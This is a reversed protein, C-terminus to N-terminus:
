EAELSFELSGIGEIKGSLRDGPRLASVGAPTGTFILDGAQLAYFRSLEAIVEPVSWIMQSLDGRQRETGNVTLSILGSQPHGCASVAVIESVPGSHDFGKATDWPRGMKKAATQIDRRTLDVGVAYGFVLSYADQVSVESGGKGLAVVLEIEHQFDETMSPYPLLGTSVIADAPKSFFFPTERDPSGGMELAHDAYNRGVCYVRHVPFVQQGGHVPLCVPDGPPFVYKM